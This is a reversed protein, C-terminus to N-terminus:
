YLEGALISVMETRNLFVFRWRAEHPLQLAESVPQRPRDESFDLKPNVPVQELRAVAGRSDLISWAFYATSPAPGSKDALQELAARAPELVVEAVNRDYWGLLLALEAASGIQGADSPDGVPPRMAVIRWFYEPVLAPDIQEVM